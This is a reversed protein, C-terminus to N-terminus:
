TDGNTEERRYYDRMDIMADRVADYDTMVDVGDPHAKIIVTFGITEEITKLAVADKVPDFRVAFM